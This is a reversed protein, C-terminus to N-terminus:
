GGYDELLRFLAAEDALPIGQALAEQDAEPLLRADLGTSYVLAGTQTEAIVIESGSLYAIYPSPSVVSRVPEADTFAGILVAFFAAFAALLMSLRVLLTARDIPYSRM